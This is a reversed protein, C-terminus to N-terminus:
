KAPSCRLWRPPQCSPAIRDARRAMLMISLCRRACRPQRLHPPADQRETAFTTITTEGPGHSWLPHLTRLNDRPRARAVEIHAPAATACGNGDCGTVRITGNPAPPGTSVRARVRLSAIRLDSPWATTMSFTVPADPVM